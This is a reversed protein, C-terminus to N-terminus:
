CGGCCAMAMAPPALAAALVLETDGIVYVISPFVHDCAMPALSANPDDPVTNHTLYPCVLVAIEGFPRMQTAPPVPVLQRANECFPIRHVAIVLAVVIIVLTRVMAYAGASWVCLLAASVAADPTPLPTQTAPPSVVFESMNEYSPILQLSTGPESDISVRHLAMANPFPINTAPPLAAVAVGM